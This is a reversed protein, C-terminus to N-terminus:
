DHQTDSDDWTALLQDVWDRLDDDDIETLQQETHWFEWCHQIMKELQSVPIDDDVQDYLSHLVVNLADSAAELDDHQDSMDEPTSLVTHIDIFTKM